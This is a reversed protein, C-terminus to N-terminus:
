PAQLQEVPKLTHTKTVFGRDVSRAQWVTPGFLKSLIESEILKMFLSSMPDGDVAMMEVPMQQQRLLEGLDVSGSYGWAIANEVPLTNMAQQFEEVESLTAVDADGGSRLAQEVRTPTGVFVNGGGLGLAFNGMQDSYITDGAFDRSQLGMQPAYKAIVSELRDPQTLQIGVLMTGDEGSTVHVGPGISNFAANLDPGYTLMFNEADQQFQPPVTAIIGNIIEMLGSFEFNMRTYRLADPWVFTPVEGTPSPEDFLSVLGRKEGDVLLASTQDMISAGEANIRYSFSMASLGNLGLVDLPKALMPGAFMVQPSVNAIKPIDKIIFVGYGDDRGSIALADRFEPREAVSEVERGEIVDIADSLTPTDSSAVLKAGIRVLYMKKMGAGFMEMMAEPDGFGGGMGGFEDADDEPVDPQLTVVITTHGNVEIEDYKRDAEDLQELFRDMVKAIAEERDEFDAYMILGPVEIGIEDHMAMYMAAGVAGKPFGITGPELEMEQEMMDLMMSVQALEEAFADKIDPDQVVSWMHSAKFRDITASMDDVGVVAFSTPPALDDIKQGLCPNALAVAGLAASLTMLQTKV